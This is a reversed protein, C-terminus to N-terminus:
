RRRPQVTMPIRDAHAVASAVEKPEHGAAPTLRWRFLVAAIAITAETWVFQDGICIRNGAGFSM